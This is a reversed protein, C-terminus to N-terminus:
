RAEQDPIVALIAEVTAHLVARLQEEGLASGSPATLFDLAELSLAQDLAPLLLAAHDPGAADLEPAFQASVQRRLLQRRDAVAQAVTASSAAHHAAARALNAMRGHLALRQEVLAGIREARTGSADPDAFFPRVEALQRDLAATALDEMDTFHRFVSRESVGSREAVQAVTPRVTGEDYLGLLAGIVAQRSRESRQRRGDVTPETM